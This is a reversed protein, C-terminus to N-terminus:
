TRKLNRFARSLNPCCSDWIIHVCVSKPQLAWFSENRLKTFRNTKKERTEIVFLFVSVFTKGRIIKSTLQFYLQLNKPTFKKNIEVQRQSVMTNENKNKNLVNKAWFSVSVVVSLVGLLLTWRSMSTMFLKRNGLFIFKKKETLKNWLRAFPFVFKKRTIMNMTIIILWLFLATNFFNAM